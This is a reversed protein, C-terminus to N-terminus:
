FYFVTAKIKLNHLHNFLRIAHPITFNTPFSFGIDTVNFFMSFCVYLSHGMTTMDAVFTEGSSWTQTGYVSYGSLLIKRHYKHFTLSSCAHKSYDYVSVVYFM